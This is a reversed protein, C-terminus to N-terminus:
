FAFVGTTMPTRPVAVPIRLWSVMGDYLRPQSQRKSATGSRVAIL